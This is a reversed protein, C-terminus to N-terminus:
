IYFLLLFLIVLVAFIVYLKKLSMERVREWVHKHERSIEHINAITAYIKLPMNEHNPKVIRMLYLPAMINKNNQTGRERMWLTSISPPKNINKKESDCIWKRRLQEGNHSHMKGNFVFTLTCTTPRWRVVHEWYM